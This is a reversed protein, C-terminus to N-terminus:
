LPLWLSLVAPPTWVSISTHSQRCEYELGDYTVIDGITYYVGPAWEETPPVDAQWLAPVAPPTWDVQTVHAQLCTYTAGEYTRQWGVKVPENGVWDLLTDANKRYRLWLALVVDPQWDSQATHAQRCKWLSDDYCALDGVAYPTDPTWDPYLGACEGAEQPELKDAAILRDLYHDQAAITICYDVGDPLGADAEPDGTRQRRGYLHTTVDGEKWGDGRVDAWMQASRAHAAEMSECPIYAITM